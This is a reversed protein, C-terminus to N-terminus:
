KAGTRGARAAQKVEVLVFSIPTSGVNESSHPAEAEMWATENPKPEWVEPKGAAPTVLMKGASTVVYVGAAHSHVPDKEGPPLTFELVRVSANDVVVRCHKADVVAADQALAPVAAVVSSALVTALSTHKM